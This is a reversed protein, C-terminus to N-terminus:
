RIYDNYVQGKVYEASKPLTIPQWDGPIKNSPSFPTYHKVKPLSVPKQQQYLQQYKINHQNDPPLPRTFIPYM